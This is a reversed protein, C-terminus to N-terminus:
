ILTNSVEACCTPFILSLWKGTKTILAYAESAPTHTHPRLMGGTLSSTEECEEFESAPPVLPNCYAGVITLGKGTSEQSKSKPRWTSTNAGQSMIVKVHLGHMTVDYLTTETCQKSHAKLSSKWM